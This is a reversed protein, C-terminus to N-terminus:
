GVEMADDTVGARSRLRRGFFQMIPMMEERNRAVGDGAREWQVIQTNEFADKIERAKSVTITSGSRGHCVLIPTKAKDKSKNKQVSIRYEDPLAGGLSIVGGLENGVNVDASEGTQADEQEKEEAAAATDRAVALGVSGGQGFGLVIVNRGGYGCSGLVGLVERVCRVAHGYGCAEVDIGADHKAPDFVIDDGWHFAAASSSSNAGTSPVPSPHGLDFPLPTPARLSICVTEPLSM